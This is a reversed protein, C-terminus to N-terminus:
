SSLKRGCYTTGDSNVQAQAIWPPIAGDSGENVAKYSFVYSSRIPQQFSPCATLESGSIRVLLQLGFIPQPRNVRRTWALSAASCEQLLIARKPSQARRM